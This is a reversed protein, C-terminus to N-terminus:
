EHNSDHQQDKVHRPPTRRSHGLPQPFGNRCLLFDLAQVDPVLARRGSLGRVVPLVPPVPSVGPRPKRRNLHERSGSNISEVLVESEGGM